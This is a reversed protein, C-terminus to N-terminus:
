FLKTNNMVLVQEAPSLVKNFFKVEDIKGNFYYNAANYSGIFVKQTLNATTIFTGTNVRVNQSEVADRFIKSGENIVSPSGDYTCCIFVWAGTTTFPMSARLSKSANNNMLDFIMTNSALYIAWERLNGTVLDKSVLYVTGVADANMWFCISYGYPTISDILGELDVDAYAQHGTVQNYCYYLMLPHTKGPTECLSFDSPYQAGALTVLSSYTLASRIWSAKLSPDDALNVKMMRM